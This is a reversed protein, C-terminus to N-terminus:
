TDERGRKDATPFQRDSVDMVLCKTFSPRCPPPGLPMAAAETEAESRLGLVEGGQQSWYCM